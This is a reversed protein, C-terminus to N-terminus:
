NLYKHLDETYKERQIQIKTKSTSHLACEYLIIQLTTASPRAVCAVKCPIWWKRRLYKLWLVPQTYQCMGTSPLYMNASARRVIYQNLAMTHIYVFINRSNYEIPIILSAHMYMYIPVYICINYMYVDYINYWYICFIKTYTKVWLHTKLVLDYVICRWMCYLMTQQFFIEVFILWILSRAHCISWSM